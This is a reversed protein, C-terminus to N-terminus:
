VFNFNHAPCSLNLDAIYAFVADYIGRTNVAMRESLLYLYPTEYIYINIAM